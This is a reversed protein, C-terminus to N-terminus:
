TVASELERKCSECYRQQWARIDELRRSEGNLFPQGDNIKGALSESTNHSLMAGLHICKVNEELLWNEWEAQLMEREISNVVRMAVLLDHRQLGLHERSRQLRRAASTQLPRVSHLQQSHDNTELNMISSYTDRCINSSVEQLGLELATSEHLEHLYIAKSMTLDPGIGLGTMFKGAKRERWWESMVVSSIIVNVLISTALVALLLSNADITEWTWRVFDFVIQVASTAVSELLSGLSEFALATLTRRTMKRRLQAKLQADNGAFLSVQTQLGVPGFIQIAKKTRGHASTFNRVQDAIVDALDLADLELDKLAAEAVIGKTLPPPRTWEVKTYVALKCKSKARHTIVVKTLLLFSDRYPLHWPTKRDSVIYLLHENNVEVMQHDEVTAQHVRRFTDLYEIQYEFDRRLHGHELQSWPGQKIHRARREHYLLQWVVSKDGFMVHFLAKPSVDFEKEVILKDMGSPAYVIPQKPLKFAKVSDGAGDLQLASSGYLGRDIVVRLDRQDRHSANRKPTSDGDTPTNISVNEWSDISPSSEPDDQEMKILAKMIEEIVIGHSIRNRVLFNLRRQLLGLPELFTKITIRNHSTTHNNNNKLHCFIFDCEKGTAATIESISDLGINTILTLGCHNSYFYIGKPTVFVRGPFEQQENPSWTAKFVLVVREDRRVNPFLLRFQADQTKLQLPYYNPYEPPSVDNKEDGEGGLSITKRHLPPPVSSIGTSKDLEISGLALDSAGLVAASHPPSGSATSPNSPRAMPSPPDSLKTSKEQPSKIEGRELRNLHGWNTSGWINAMLGSPMGGSADTRGVGIGREGNVVVAAASLNTPAPPNALTNPALTSKPMDRMRPVQASSKRSITEPPPPTPLAGPGVPMSTHSAVILSAIGGGSHGPSALSGALKDGGLPKRHLDLKQIIRSAPDRSTDVDREAFSRRHSTVDFSSRNASHDPLTSSRDIGFASTNDDMHQPMGSDAVSAAFEPASPPSIAFAPDQARPGLGPSQTSAPDELAKQKAVDFASLWEILEIQTEAQVIITTDKTKVEFVYRRDDSNGPKVNCLLVGIRESEEVGGSRSGQVLWGFIGNKVYFWRRLWITRSPKGSITRLNLWGQKESRVPRPRGGLIQRNMTPPAIAASASASGIAYDDLERSPRTAAEASEEIQKRATQLERRFAKEGNEMERSWGSVREIDSGWKGISGSINQRPDRMDRWQNAFVKVLMKDLAMRLQPATVSFDMSAKLYAKRAEHLQFADERLSSAEKSKAQGSYRSQLNDLEKQTVHLNRRTERFSRLDNYLFTRMPELMNAQIKKLAAITAMWTEKAGQGYRQMALLTYDHDIIAESLHTPPTTQALFGNVLPEFNALEHSLKSTCRVYGELWKEVLDVQESFHTFASRFTPSDLAAEKLGVPTLTIPRGVQVLTPIDAM